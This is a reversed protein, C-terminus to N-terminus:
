LYNPGDHWCISRYGAFKQTMLELSQNMVPSAPLFTFTSQNSRFRVCRGRCQRRAFNNTTRTPSPTSLGGVSAFLVLQEPDKLPLMRLLIRDVLGLVATTTGIGVALTLVAVTTFGPNKVLMGLGYRVDQLLTEM